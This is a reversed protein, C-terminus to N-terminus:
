NLYINCLWVYHFLFKFVLQNQSSEDGIEEFISLKTYFM